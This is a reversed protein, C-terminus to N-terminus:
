VPEGAKRASVFTKYRRGLNDLQRCCAEQDAENECYVTVGFVRQQQAEAPGSSTALRIETKLRVVSWRKKPADESVEPPNAARELWKRQEQRPLSAVVQHHSYSLVDLRRDQKAIQKSAWRYTRLTEESWGTHDLLQSAEEGFREEVEKFFDGIAFQLSKDLTRLTEGLAAFAEISPKGRVDLGNPTIQFNTGLNVTQLTDQEVVIAAKATM